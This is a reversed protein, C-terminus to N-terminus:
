ATKKSPDLSVEAVVAAEDLSLRRINKEYAERSRQLDGAVRQYRWIADVMDSFTFDPWLADVFVLAAFRCNLLMYDSLRTEGSTRVLIDVPPMGEGLISARESGHLRSELEREDVDCARLTGARVARRTEVVARAIDERGTYAMCVNLMPGDNARTAEMVAVAAERVATPLAALDGSVHVRARHRMLREDRALAGLKDIALEFLAELEEAPRNFNETSLAYVSLYEVGLDFCWECARALTEAGREHGRALSGGGARAHRRNGDMIVAVHRPIAGRRLVAAVRRRVAAALVDLWANAVRKARASAGSGARSGGVRADMMERVDSARGRARPRGARAVFRRSRARSHRMRMARRAGMRRALTSERASPAFRDSRSTNALGLAFVAGNARAAVRSAIMSRDPRNADM